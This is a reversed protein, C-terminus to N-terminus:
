YKEGHATGDCKARTRAAMWTCYKESTFTADTLFLAADVVEKFRVSGAV